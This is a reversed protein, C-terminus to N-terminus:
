GGLIAKGMYPQLVKPVAITGDAQQYNEMIAAIMRGMAIFTADNMHVAETTGDPRKIKTNLRRAQYGGM